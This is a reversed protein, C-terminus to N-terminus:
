RVNIIFLPLVPLARVAAFPKRWQSDAARAADELIPRGFHM